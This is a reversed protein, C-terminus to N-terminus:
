RKLKYVYIGDRQNWCNMIPHSDFDPYSELSGWEITYSDTIKERPFGQTVTIKLLLSLTKKPIRKLKKGHEIEEFLEPYKRIIESTPIVEKIAEKPNLYRLKKNMRVIKRDKLWFEFGMNLKTAKNNSLNSVVLYPNESILVTPIDDVSAKNSVVKTIIIPKYIHRVQRYVLCILIVNAVLISINVITFGTNM